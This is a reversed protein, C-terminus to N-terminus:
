GDGHGRVPSVGLPCHGEKAPSGLAPHLGGPPTEHSLPRGDRHEYVDHVRGHVSVPYNPVLINRLHASSCALVGSGAPPKQGKNSLM